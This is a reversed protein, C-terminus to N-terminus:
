FSRINYVFLSVTAVILMFTIVLSSDRYKKLFGFDGGCNKLYAADLIVVIIGNAVLRMSLYFFLISLSVLLAVACVALVTDSYSRLGTMLMVSSGSWILTGALFCCYLPRVHLVPRSRIHNVLSEHKEYFVDEGADIVSSVWRYFGGSQAILFSFVAAFSLNIYVARLLRGSVSSLHGMSLISAVIIALYGGWMLVQPWLSAKEDTISLLWMTKDVIWERDTFFGAIDLVSYSIMFLAASFLSVAMYINEPMFRRFVFFIALNLAFLVTVTLYHRAINM